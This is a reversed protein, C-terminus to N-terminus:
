APVLVSPLESDPAMRLLQYSVGALGQLLGPGTMPQGTSLLPGYTELSTVLQGVLRDRDLEPPALGVADAAALLEWTGLDGHCLTHNRCLGYRLGAAAARRVIRAHDTGTGSRANGLLDASALGIGIAGHCWATAAPQGPLERLDLWDELTRDYRGEEYDFAAAAAARHTASGTHGSLRALAWGIGTAGHAFGGLGDSSRATPWFTGGDPGPRGAEALQEGFDNALDLWRQQGTADALSLLAVIAGATGLLLEPDATAAVATPLADVLVAARDLGEDGVAGLRRLTLWCSIQSGLGLYLGVPEPRATTPGARERQRATNALRASALVGALLSELEPVALARGAAVERRYGALAVAIGLLGSYLDTGVPRFAWGIATRGTGLWTVTSDRGRIASRALKGILNAALLLRRQDLRATWRTSRLLQLTPADDLYASQLASRIVERDLALDGDRWNRLTDAVLNRPQGTPLGGPGTLVGDAPYSTFLPVDGALLQRVEAEIVAPEDPAPPAVVGQRRLLDSARAVAAQEDHLSAPHWLMRSLEAYAETARLVARVEVQGFGALLPALEGVLDTDRLREALQDFGALVQPWYLHLDPQESPRNEARVPPLPASGIRARDTGADIIVPVETAPQQDPLAAAASVDIGRWGLLSGRGPLLGSRLLSSALVARARDTADGYGSPPPETSPSFLTECDVVVPTPGCAVLNEAHLDTAGLLRAIALWHGLRRYYDALQDNSDCYRHRVHEAWGYGSREIVEPVRIRGPEPEVVASLLTALARDAALSRPKYVVPGSDLELLAVTRGGRHSDGLGLRIARLEPLRGGVLAAVAARDAAFRSALELAAATRGAILADLRGSLTPYHIALGDWFAPVSAQAVFEEWRAESTGATLANTTGAQHLEVLLLRSVKQGITERLAAGTGDLLITREAGSLGRIRSISGALESLAPQCRSEAVGDLSIQSTVSV